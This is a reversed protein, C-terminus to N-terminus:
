FCASYSSNPFRPCRQVRASLYLLLLVATPDLLMHAAWRQLGLKCGAYVGSGLISITSLRM